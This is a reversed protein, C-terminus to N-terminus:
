WFNSLDMRQVCTSARNALSYGYASVRYPVRSDQAQQENLGIATVEPDLFMITSLNRHILFPDHVMEIQTAICKFSKPM